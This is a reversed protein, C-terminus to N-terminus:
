YQEKTLEKSVLVCDCRGGGVYLKQDGNWDAM